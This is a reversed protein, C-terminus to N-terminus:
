DPPKQKLARMIVPSSLPNGNRALIGRRAMITSIDRYSHGAARLEHIMRLGRQEKRDPVWKAGDNRYGYPAHRSIRHGQSRKHALVEKTREAIAERQWQVVSGLVNLVLRGSATSTDISDSISALEVGKKEFLEILDGLDRLSRTIRDLKVVVM